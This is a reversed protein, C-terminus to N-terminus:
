NSTVPLRSGWGGPQSDDLVVPYLESLETQM